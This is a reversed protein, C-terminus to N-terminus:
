DHGLDRGLAAIVKDRWERLEKRDLSDFPDIAMSNQGIRGALRIMQDLKGNGLLDQLDSNM